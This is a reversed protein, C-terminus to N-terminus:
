VEWADGILIEDEKYYSVSKDYVVIRENENKSLELLDDISNVDVYWCVDMEGKMYEAMYSWRRWMVKRIAGGCPKAQDNSARSIKFKM